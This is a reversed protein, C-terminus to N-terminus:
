VHYFLHGNYIIINVTLKLVVETGKNVTISYIFVRGEVNQDFYEILISDKM